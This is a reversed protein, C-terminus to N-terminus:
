SEAGRVACSAGRVEEHGGEEAGGLGELLAGASEGPTVVRRGLDEGLFGLADEGPLPDADAALLADRLGAGVNERVDRTLAQDDHTVARSDNAREVVDAPMAPRPQTLIRTSRERLGNLTWVVGPRVPEIPPQVARRVHVLDLAEVLAVVRQM